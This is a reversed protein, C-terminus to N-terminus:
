WSGDITNHPFRKKIEKMRDRFASHNDPKWVGLQFADGQGPAAPRTDLDPNSALREDLESIKLFEVEGLDEGTSKLYFQYYPM